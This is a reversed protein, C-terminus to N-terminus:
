TKTSGASPGAKEQGALMRRAYAELERDEDTGPTWAPVPTPRGADDVAVFVVICDTTKQRIDARPDGASVEVAIQMSTRGTSAVRARTEVLDGVHIPRVFRIGGVYATVSYRGSWGVACTYAAQDIWHMVTGGHVKGGFNVDRPEALFRLTVERQGGQPMAANDM